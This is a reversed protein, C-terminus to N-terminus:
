ASANSSTAWSRLIELIEGLNHPGGRAQWATNQVWCQVWDRESREIEVRSFPIKELLTGGIEVTVSWGPNDLTTITIGSQHEWDGDCCSAYFTELWRIIDNSSM